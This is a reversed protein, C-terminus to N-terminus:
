PGTGERINRLKQHGSGCQSLDCTRRRITQYMFLHIRKRNKHSSRQASRHQRPSQRSCSSFSFAAAVGPRALPSALLGVKSPAPTTLHRCCPPRLTLRPLLLVAKHAYTPRKGPLIFMKKIKHQERWIRSISGLDSGQFNLGNAWSTRMLKEDRPQVRRAIESLHGFFFGQSRARKNQQSSRKNSYAPTTFWWGAVSFKLERIVM